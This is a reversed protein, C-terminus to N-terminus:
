AGSDPPTNSGSSASNDLVNFLFSLGSPIEAQEAKLKIKVGYNLSLNEQKSNVQTAGMIARFEVRENSLWDEESQSTRNSLTTRTNSNIVDTVKITYDLEADKIQIAPIPVLSLLPIQVSYEELDGFENPKQYNFTVMRLEGFSETELNAVSGDSGESTPPKKFGIEEIFETTAQAAQTQAQVLALLPAGVLHHLPLSRLESVAAGAERNNSM